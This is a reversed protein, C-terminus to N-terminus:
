NGLNNLYIAQDPHDQPTTNVAEQILKISEELDTIAGTRIYRNGFDVGLNNLHMAQDSHDEATTDVAERGIRIAEELDAVIEM